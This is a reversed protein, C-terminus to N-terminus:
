GIRGAKVRRHCGPMAHPRPVSATYDTGHVGLDGPKGGLDLRALLGIPAWVAPRHLQDRPRESTVRLADGQESGPDAGGALHGLLAGFGLLTPDEDPRAGPRDGRGGGIQGPVRATAVGARAARVRPKVGPTRDGAWEIPRVASKHASRM